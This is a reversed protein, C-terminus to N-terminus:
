PGQLQSDKMPTLKVENNVRVTAGDMVKIQGSAVVLVGEKLGSKVIVDDSVVDGLEARIAKVKYLNGQKDSGDPILTYIQNGYLSYVIATRPVLVVLQEEGIRLDANAFMGPNLLKEENPFVAQITFNRTDTDVSVGKALVTGVFTKGPISPLTMQVVQGQNTTNFFQEPLTFNAYIPQLTQLNALEQGASVYEGINLNNIGIQGSFPAKVHKYNINAQEMQVNAVAEEYAAQAEDYTEKSILGAKYVQYDRDMTIKNIKMTAIYNNLQQVEAFDELQVIDQGAKVYEGSEFFIKLIKGAVQANIGVGQVSNITAVSSIHNYWNAQTSVASSITQYQQPQAAAIQASRRDKYWKLGYIGGFLVVIVIFLVLYFRGKKAAKLKGSM